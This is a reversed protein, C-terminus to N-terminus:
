NMPRKNYLNPCLEYVSDPARREPQRSEPIKGGENEM